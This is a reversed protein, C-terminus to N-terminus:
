DAFDCRRDPHEQDKECLFGPKVELPQLPPSFRVAMGGDHDIRSWARSRRLAGAAKAAAPASRKGLESESACFTTRRPVSVIRKDAWEVAL